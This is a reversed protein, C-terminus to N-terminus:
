PLVVNDKNKHSHGSSSILFLSNDLKAGGQRLQKPRSFEWSNDNRLLLSTPSQPKNSGSTLNSHMEVEFTMKETKKWSYRAM